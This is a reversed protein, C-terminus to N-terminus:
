KDKSFRYPVKVGEYNFKPKINEIMSKEIGELDYNSIVNHSEYLIEFKYGYNAERMAKYLYDKQSNNSKLNLSENIHESIREKLDRITKGIYVLEGDIKIGYIYANKRETEKPKEQKKNEEEEQQQKQKKEEELRIFWNNIREQNENVLEDTPVIKDIIITVYNKIQSDHFTSDENHAMYSDAIIKITKFIDDHKARTYLTGNPHFYVRYKDIAKERNCSKFTCNYLGWTMNDNFVFDKFASEGKSNRRDKIFNYVKLLNSKSLGYNVNKFDDTTLEQLM